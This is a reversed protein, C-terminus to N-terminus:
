LFLRPNTPADNLNVQWHLHPGTCYGTCGEYGILTGASVYQGVHVPIRTQLHWFLSVLNKAHAIIVVYAPDYPSRGAIIVKGPGDAYIPTGAGTSAVMDIGRHFHACSGYPPELYFGTCGFPQSIYFGVHMPWHLSGSYRSPIGGKALAQQVLKDILKQLKQEAALQAKLQAAVKAKNAALDAYQAQQANLLDQYNAQLKALQAKADNLDSLQSALQAQQQAAAQRMTDAQQRTLETNQHLVGLVQQDQLIQNALAKDQEAFDLHYGVDTLVDTFDSSSLITELLSTRDTDYATRIRDALIAKRATLQDTKAAEQQELDTLERDLQAVTAELEDVSAQAQAVDVTMQVINTKVSTLDDVVSSLTAKTSSLKASLAAQNATLQALRAKQAAIQKELQRQQAYADSLADASVNPPPVSVFLGGALAIILLAIAGRRSPRPRPRATTWGRADVPPRRTLLTKM